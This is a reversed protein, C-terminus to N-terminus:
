TSVAIRDCFFILPEIMGGGFFFLRFCFLIKKRRCYPNQTPTQNSKPSRNSAIAKGKWPVYLCARKWARFQRMKGGVNQTKGCVLM